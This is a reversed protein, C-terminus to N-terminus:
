VLLFLTQERQRETAEWVTGDEFRDIWADGVVIHREQVARRLVIPAPAGQLLCITDGSVSGRPVSALIGSSLVALRRSHDLRTNYRLAIDDLVIKSALVQTWIRILGNPVQAIGLKQSIYDISAVTLDDAFVPDLRAACDQGQLFIREIKEPEGPLDLEGLESLYDALFQVCAMIWPFVNAKCYDIIDILFQAEPPATSSPAIRQITTMSHGTVALVNPEDELLGSSARFCQTSGGALNRRLWWEGRYTELKSASERTLNGFDPIWSPRQEGTPSPRQTGALGLPASCRRHGFDSNEVAYRGFIM